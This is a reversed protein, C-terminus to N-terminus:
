SHFFQPSILISLIMEIITDLQWNTLDGFYVMSVIVLDSSIHSSNTPYGVPTWPHTPTAESM